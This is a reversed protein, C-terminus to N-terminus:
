PRTSAASARASAAGTAATRSVLMTMAVSPAARKRPSGTGREAQGPGDQDRDADREEAELALAQGGGPPWCSRPAPSASSSDQQSLTAWGITATTTRSSEWCPSTSSDPRRPSRWSAGAALLSVDGGKGLAYTAVCALAIAVIPELAIGSLDVSGGLDLVDTTNGSKEAWRSSCRLSRSSRASPALLSATGSRFPAGWAGPSRAVTWSGVLGGTLM